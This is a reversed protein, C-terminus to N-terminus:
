QKKVRFIKKGKIVEEADRIYKAKKDKVFERLVQMREEYGEINKEACLKYFEMATALDMMFGEQTRKM